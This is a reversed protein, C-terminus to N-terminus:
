DGGFRWWRQCASREAHQWSTQFCHHCNMGNGLRTECRCYNQSNTTLNGSRKSLQRCHTSRQYIRRNGVLDDQDSDIGLNNDDLEKGKRRWYEALSRSSQHEWRGWEKSNYQHLPTQRLLLYHSMLCKIIVKIVIICTTNCKYKIM